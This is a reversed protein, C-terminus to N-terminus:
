PEVVALSYDCAATNARIYLPDSPITLYLFRGPDVRLTWEAGASEGCVEFYNTEDLNKIAMIDVSTLGTVPIATWSTTASFVGGLMNSGTIDENLSGAVSVQSVGDIVSFSVTTRKENAM